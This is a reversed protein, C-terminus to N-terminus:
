IIYIGFVVKVGEFAVVGLGLVALVQGLRWREEEEIGCGARHSSIGFL